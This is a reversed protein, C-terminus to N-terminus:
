VIILGSTCAVFADFLTMCVERMTDSTDVARLRSMLMTSVDKFIYRSLIGVCARAEVRVSPSYGLSIREFCVKM